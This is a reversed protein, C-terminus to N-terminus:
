FLLCFVRLRRLACASEPIQNLFYFSFFDRLVFITTSYASWTYYTPCVFFLCAFLLSSRWANNLENEDIRGIIGLGDFWM